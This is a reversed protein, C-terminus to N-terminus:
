TMILRVETSGCNLNAIHCPWNPLAKRAFSGYLKRTFSGYLDPCINAKPILDAQAVGHPGATVWKYGAFPLQAWDELESIQVLREDERLRSPAVAPM